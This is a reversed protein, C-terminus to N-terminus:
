RTPGATLVRASVVAAADSGRTVSFFALDAIPVDVKGTVERPKDGPTWQVVLHNRGATDVAYLKYQTGSQLGVCTAHAVSADGESIVSVSLRVSAGQGVATVAGAQQVPVAKPGPQAAVVAAVIGGAALVVVAFVTAVARRRRSSAPRKEGPRSSGDRNAPRNGAGQTRSGVGGATAPRTDGQAPAVPERGPASAPGNAPAASPTVAEVPPWPEALLREIEAGGLDALGAAAPALRECEDLCEACGALHREFTREGEPDLGGLLYTSCLLLEAHTAAEGEGQHRLDTM